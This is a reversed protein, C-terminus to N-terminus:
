ASAGIQNRHATVALTQVSAGLVIVGFCICFATLWHFHLLHLLPIALLPALTGRIGFLTSHIAQYQSASDSEAFLLVSNLYGLDVGSQAAGSLFGALMLWSITPGFAYCLPVMSNLGVSVFTTTLPGFRDTFWGWFPYGFLAAASSAMVVVAIQEPLIHFRDVQYLPYYTNACLNGMGALFVGICFLRYATNCRLIRGADQLFHQFRPKEEEKEEQLELRSFAIATCVGFIGGVCFIWRYDVHYQEQLLGMFHATAFTAAAVGIRVVSMLRARVEAPYIMKMLATYAPNSISFFIPAYCILFLYWERAYAGRVLLPTLMFCGRTFLWTITVFPLKRRGEMQHAWVIVFLYGLAQSAVALGMQYSTAHLTGRALQLAFAWVCGQYVGTCCGATIDRRWNRLIVESAPIDDLPLARERLRRLRQGASQPSSATQLQNHKNQKM